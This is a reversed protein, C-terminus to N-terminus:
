SRRTSFVDAFREVLDWQKNRAVDRTLTSGSVPVLSLDSFSGMGGMIARMSDITAQFEQSDVSAERITNLGMSFWSAQDVYSCERLLAIIEEVIEILQPKM